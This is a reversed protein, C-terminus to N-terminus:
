KSWTTGQKVVTAPNGAVISNSACDKTVVSGFGVISNDGIHVNKLITSNECLWVHNGIHIDKPPNIQKNMDEVKFIKHSDHNRILVGYSTMCDEGMEISGNRIVFQVGRIRTKNGIKLISDGEMCISCPGMFRIDSGISINNNDGTIVISTNELSCNRGIEIRNNNGVISIYFKNKLDSRLLIVNNNGKSIIPRFFRYLKRLTNYIFM